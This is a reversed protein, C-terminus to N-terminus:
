KLSNSNLFWFYMKFTLLPFDPLKLLIQTLQADTNSAVNVILQHTLLQYKEIDTFQDNLVASNNGLFEVENRLKALKKFVIKFLHHCATLLRENTIPAAIVPPPELFAPFAQNLLLDPTLAPTVDLIMPFTFEPNVPSTVPSTVPLAQAFYISVLCVVVFVAMGFLFESTMGTSETLLPLESSDPSLGSIAKLDRVESLLAELAKNQQEVHLFLFYALLLVTILLLFNIFLLFLM